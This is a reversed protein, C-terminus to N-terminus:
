EQAANRKINPEFAACKEIKPVILYDTPKDSFMDSFGVSDCSM